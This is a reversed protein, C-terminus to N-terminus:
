QFPITWDMGSQDNVYDSAAANVSPRRSDTSCTSSADDDRRSPEPASLYQYSSAPSLGTSPTLQQQAVSERIEEVRKSAFTAATTYASKVSSMAKATKEYRHDITISSHRRHDLLIQAQISRYEVLLFYHRSLM